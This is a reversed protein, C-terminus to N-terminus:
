TGRGGAKVFVTSNSIAWSPVPSKQEASTNNDRKLYSAQPLLQLLAVPGMAKYPMTATDTRLM